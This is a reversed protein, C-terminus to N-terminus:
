PQLNTALPDLSAANATEDVSSSKILNDQVYSIPRLYAHPSELLAGFITRGVPGATQGGSGGHEIVVAIAIRPHRYPAFGAFWAHTQPTKEETRNPPWRKMVERRICKTNRPLNLMERANEITPAIAYETEGDGLDFTYKMEVVRAVCQASGTKGCITLHDLRAHKYATGGMENVCRYLGRRAIRVAEASVGQIREDREQRPHNAIIKPDRYTGRALTAYINAAQLPTIQMEGQGIAYNRGDARRYKRKAKKTIWDYTPIIGAREEILGTTSRRRSDPGYIFDAYFDTLRQANLRQGLGYFYINCSHMISDEAAVYGHGPLGKWHTWCHWFTSEPIFSGDCYVQAKPDVLQHKFGALLSIPKVISGPQYEEAVARFLLPRRKADDRLVRYEKKFQEHSFSPVSVLALVDQTEIDLVVCSAGTRHSDEAVASELIEAIRRQLSADITLQVDLGDIPPQFEKRHGDLNKEEYGRKGRLMMEGLYEVGSVGARDGSRYCALPDDKRPDGDIRRASVEGLNGLLHCLPRADASWVRRVSPEIRVFPLGSLELEIRTRVEPTIDRLVSYFWTDDRLRVSELPEEYGDRQRKKWVSRRIREVADCIGDRRQRLSYLPTDSAQELTLWMRRIRDEIEAELESPSAGRWRPDQRGLRKALRQLYSENMSLAGYFVTVDLAPEDSVLLRGYRDLIRGRLPPLFHRPALLAEDAKQQYSTGFVVQLQFLRAILIIGCIVPITLVVKLRREFM